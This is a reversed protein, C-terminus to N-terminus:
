EESSGNPQSIEYKQVFHRRVSEQQLVRPEWGGMLKKTFDMYCTIEELLVVIMCNGSGVL